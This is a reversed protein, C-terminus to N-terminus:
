GVIGSREVGEMFYNQLGIYILIIPLIVLVIGAYNYMQLLSQDNIRYSSAISAALSTIKKGIAINPSLYLLRAYFTDNFQWVMSFVAVTIVSPISNVLMIRLYTYFMSAGDVFAAEEIEKPLGRFFQTFIYIYLGSKLGVGFFTMIYMPYPTSLLNGFPGFNRFTIYIPLMITNVPLVIMLVVAGFLIKKFPFEFRAFGYGVMSCIIVHMIMLSINFLLTSVMTPMYDLTAWAAEYKELTPQQPILFVMPNYKDTDSFFSHSVINILPGLIIYSIGIIIILKFVFFIFGKSATAAKKRDNEFQADNRLREITSSIKDRLGRAKNSTNSKELLHEKDLSHEKSM